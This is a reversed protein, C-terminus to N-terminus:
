AYLCTANRSRVPAPPCARPRVRDWWPRSGSPTATRASGEGGTGLASVLSKALRALNREAPRKMLVATQSCGPTKRGTNPM